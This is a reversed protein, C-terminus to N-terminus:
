LMVHPPVGLGIFGLGEVVLGLGQVRCAVLASCVAVRTTKAPDVVCSVIPIVTFGTSRRSSCTGVALQKCMMLTSMLSLLTEWLHCTTFAFLM